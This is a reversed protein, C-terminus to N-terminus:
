EFESYPLGSATDRGCPGISVLNHVTPLAIEMHWNFEQECTPSAWDVNDPPASHRGRPHRYCQCPWHTYSYRIELAINGLWVGVAILSVVTNRNWIAIIRLVIIFSAFAWSAYALALITIVLPDCPSRPSDMGIFMFILSLLATYRTGLYVWITWRYPRRRRLVDLEFGATFVTEWIYIGGIAHSLKIFAIRDKLLVAPDHWNVM